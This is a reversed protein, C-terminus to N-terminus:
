KTPASFEIPRDSNVSLTAVLEVQGASTLFEATTTKSVLEGDDGIATIVVAYYDIQEIIVGAALLEAMDGKLVQELIDFHTDGPVLYGQEIVLEYVPPNSGEITRSLYSLDLLARLPAFNLIDPNDLFEDVTAGAFGLLAPSSPAWVPQGGQESDSTWIGDRNWLLRFTAGDDINVATEFIGRTRSGRVATAALRPEGDIVAQTVYEFSLEDAAGLWATTLDFLEEVSLLEPTDAGFGDSGASSEGTDGSEGFLGSEAADILPEPVPFELPENWSRLTAVSNAYFTSAEDEAEGASLGFQDEITSESRVVLPAGSNQSITLQMRMSQIGADTLQIGQESLVEMTAANLAEVDIYCDILWVPEGEHSGVAISGGVADICGFIQVLQTPDAFDTPNGGLIETIILLTEEAQGTLDVWGDIDPASMYIADESVLVRMLMPEDGTEVEGSSLGEGLQFLQTLDTTALITLPDFRAEVSSTFELALGSLGVSLEVDLAMSELSDAWATYAAFAEDLLPDGFGDRAVVASDQQQVQDVPQEDAEAEQSSAASSTSTASTTTASQATSQSQEPTQEDQQAQQQQDDGGCASFLAALAVVSAILFWSVTRM